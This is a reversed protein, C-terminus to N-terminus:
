GGPTFANTTLGYTNPEQSYEIWGDIIFYDDADIYEGTEYVTFQRLKILYKDLTANLEISMRFQMKDDSYAGGIFRIKKDLSQFTDDMAPIIVRGSQSDIKGDAHDKRWGRIMIFDYSLRTSNTPIEAITFEQSNDGTGNTDISVNIKQPKVEFNGWIIDSGKLRGFEDTDIAYVMEGDVPPDIIFDAKNARRFLIGTSAM